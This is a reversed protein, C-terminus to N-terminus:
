YYTPRTWGLVVYKYTREFIIDLELEEPSAYELYKEFQEITFAKSPEVGIYSMAAKVLPNPKKIYDNVDNDIFYSAKPRFVNMGASFRLPHSEFGRLNEGQQNELGPGDVM